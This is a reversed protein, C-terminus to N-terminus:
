AVNISNATLYKLKEYFLQQAKAWSLTYHISCAFCKPPVVAM